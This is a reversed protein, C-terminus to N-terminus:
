DRLEFFGLLASLDADSLAEVSFPPMIGGYGLFPGHRVKEIFVKRTETNSNLYKHDRITDEPLIPFTNKLRGAGTTRAGHCVRCAGDFVVQGRARDGLPLDAIERPITFAYPSTDASKLTQLYAYFAKAEVTDPTWDKTSGMFLFRCLNISALLDAQEGGWYSPRKLMGRMPAGTKFPTADEAHCTTCRFANLPANSARVDSAIDRGHDAASLPTTDPSSCAAIGALCAALAGGIVAARASAGKRMTRGTVSM